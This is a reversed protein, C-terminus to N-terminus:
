GYELVYLIFFFAGILFGLMAAVDKKQEETLM